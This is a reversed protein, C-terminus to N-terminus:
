EDCVQFIGTRPRAVVVHAFDFIHLSSTAPSPLGPCIHVGCQVGGWGGGGRWGKLREVASSCIYYDLKMKTGVVCILSGCVKKQQVLLGFFFGLETM